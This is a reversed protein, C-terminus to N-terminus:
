CRTSSAAPVRSTLRELPRSLMKSQARRSTCSTCHMRRHPESLEAACAYNFLAKARTHTYHATRFTEPRLRCGPGPPAIDQFECYRGIMLGRPAGDSLLVILHPAPAPARPRTSGNVWLVLASTPSSLLSMIIM